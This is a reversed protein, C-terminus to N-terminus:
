PEIRRQLDGRELLRAEHLPQHAAHQRDARLRMAVADRRQRAEIAAAPPADQALRARAIHALGIALEALPLEPPEDAPALALPLRMHEGIEDLVGLTPAAR